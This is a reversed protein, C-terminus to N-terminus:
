TQNYSILTFLFCVDFYLFLIVSKRLTFVVFAILFLQLEKQTQKNLTRKGEEKEEIIYGLCIKSM